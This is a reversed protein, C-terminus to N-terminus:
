EPIVAAILNTGQLAVYAKFPKPRGTPDTGLYEMWGPGSAQAFSAMRKLIPAGGADPLKAHDMKIHRSMRNVALVEFSGSYVTLEPDTAPRLATFKGKPNMVEAVLTDIGKGKALKLSEKVWSEAQTAPSAPPQGALAVLAIPFLFAAFTIRKM